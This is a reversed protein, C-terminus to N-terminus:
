RNPCTSRLCLLPTRSGTASGNHFIPREAVLDFPKKWALTLNSGDWYFNEVMSKMFKRKQEPNGLNYLNM